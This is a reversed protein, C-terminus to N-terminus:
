VLVFQFNKYFRSLGTLVQISFQHLQSAKCLLQSIWEIMAFLDPLVSVYSWANNDVTWM